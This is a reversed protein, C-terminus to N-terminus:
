KFIYIPPPPSSPSSILFPLLTGTKCIAYTLAIDGPTKFPKSLQMFAKVAKRKFLVAHNCLPMLVQTASFTKNTMNGLNHGLQMEPARRYCEFCFGLFQMDYQTTPISLMLRFYEVAEQLHYKGSVTVDDEFLIMEDYNSELFATMVRLKGLQCLFRGMGMSSKSKNFNNSLSGNRKFESIEAPTIKRPGDIFDFHRQDLGLDKMLQICNDKRDIKGGYLFYAHIKKEDFIQALSTLDSSGSLAPEIALMLLLLCTVAPPPRM